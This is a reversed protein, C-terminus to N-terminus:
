PQLRTPNIVRIDAGLQTVRRAFDSTGGIGDGQPNEDWVLLAYLSRGTHGGQVRATNLIWLNTRAFVEERNPAPGLRDDQNAVAGCKKLLTRFRDVWNGEGNPLRVSAEIFEPEPLALLLRLCAGRALCEEGFLIDAGRAGGCLALDKKGIKWDDLQRAIEARVANEKATPFRSTARDPKDIMHGSAVFVRAFHSSPHGLEDCRQRLLQAVPESAATQFGLGAFLEVQELMSKVNFYTLSPDAIADEYNCLADDAEGTVLHLEGLTAKAWVIEPPNELQGTAAVCVVFRLDDLDEVGTKAPRRKTAEALHNLLAALSVVNIGNYHSALNARLALNYSKIASVARAASRFAEAQREALGEKKWWAMRWMDKYVRGLLGQAEPDGPRETALRILAEEAKAANGLRNTVLALQCRADFDQADLALVEELVEEAQVFRGIEILAKACERLLKKRHLPTHVDGALTLIDEPYGNKRAVKVRQSWDDAINNFYTARQTRVESIDAPKLGEVLSYVPSAITQADKEIAVAIKGSLEDVEQLREAEWKNDRAREPEFLKGNYRFTRDPAVDFPRESWGAHVCLVGRPAVGHRVGLEYFVNANLISIDALVIDGTVLEFFMDRRIDGAAEEEDARFPQCGAKELAPALLKKYVENFDIKLPTDSPAPQADNRVKKPVEKEGFPMVVFVRRRIGPTKYAM